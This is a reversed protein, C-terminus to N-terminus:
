TADGGGTGGGQRAAEGAEPMGPGTREGAMSTGDPTRFLTGVALTVAFGVVIFWPWALPREFLRPVEARSVIALCPFLLTNFKLALVAYVSVAMAAVNGADNGRRKTVRGLFFVGLLAGYAYTMVALGEKLLSESIREFLIAVAVLIASMVASMIRSVFLDRRADDSRRVIRKYVDIVAVSALAGIASSTSSMAAAFVAALVLGRLGVPIQHV